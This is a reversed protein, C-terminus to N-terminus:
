NRRVEALRERCAALVAAPTIRQLCENGHTRCELLACGECAVTERLVTQPVGYPFWMGPWERASFLAVCPTGAAAALHMTGTDNGLYLACRRLAAVSGRLNLAGAANYGRGAATLLREGVARDEPGGFIVPWVDHTTVLEKVVAQFREEPWRKASMKSGPGVGLWRRGGDGPVPESSRPRPALSACCTLAHSRSKGPSPPRRQSPALYALTDFGAARLRALLGLMRVPRLLRGRPSPDVVYAFFEDVVGSGRLLDSALVFRKDPHQDCLLTLRAHPFQRRLVWLAPLAVVTDGLQGIRFVLVRLPAASATPALAM